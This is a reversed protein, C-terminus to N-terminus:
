YGAYARPVINITEEDDVLDYIRANDNNLRKTDTAVEIDRAPVDLEKAYKDKLSGVTDSESISIKEPNSDGIGKIIWINKKM